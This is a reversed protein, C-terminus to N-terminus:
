PTPVREVVRDDADSTAQDDDSAAPTDDDVPDPTDDDTTAALDDDATAPTDAVAEDQAGRGRQKPAKDAAKRRPEKFGGRRRRSRSMLGDVVSALIISLLAVGVGAAGATVLRDRVGVTSEQAVAITSLSVRDRTPIAEDRQLRELTDSTLELVEDIIPAVHADVPATVTVLVVPGSATTDRLVEVQADPHEELLAILEEDASVARVLVDAVPALGGIYLFRNTSGDPLLGQGPLLLQSASRQYEPPTVQWAGYAAVAALILGPVTIYWRRVLGRIADLLNM